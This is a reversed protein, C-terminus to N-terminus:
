NPLTVEKQRFTKNEPPTPKILLFSLNEKIWPGSLSKEFVLSQVTQLGPFFTSGYNDNQYKERAKVEQATFLRANLLALAAVLMCTWRVMGSVMGLYYEARGFVDSGILKDGLRHKVLAFAGLILLATGIYVMLYSALLSFPSSEALYRGAPEYVLGCVVVICAWKLLLMLEESMGHKRGRLVGVVLVVVLGFDFVNIPLRDLSM